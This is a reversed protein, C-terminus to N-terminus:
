GSRVTSRARRSREQLLADRRERPTPSRKKGAHAARLEQAKRIAESAQQVKFAEIAPTSPYPMPLWAGGGVQYRHGGDTDPLVLASRYISDAFRGTHQRDIFYPKQILRTDPAVAVTSYKVKRGIRFVGAYIPKETTLPVAKLMAELSPYTPYGQRLREMLLHYSIGLPQSGNAQYIARIDDMASAEYLRQDDEALRTLQEASPLATLPAGRALQGAKGQLLRQWRQLLFPRLTKSAPPLAADRLAKGRRILGDVESRANEYPLGAPDQYAIHQWVAKNYAAGTVPSQLSANFYGAIYDALPPRHSWGAAQRPLRQLPAPGHFHSEGGRDPATPWPETFARMPPAFANVPLGIEM